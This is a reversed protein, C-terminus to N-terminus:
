QRGKIIEVGVSEAFRLAGPKEVRIKVKEVADYELCKGAIREALTELLNFRSTEVLQIIQKNVTRYNLADAIADTKAARSFDTWIVANIVVEQKNKREGPNVGIICSLKLNKIIIKHM